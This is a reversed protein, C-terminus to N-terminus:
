DNSFYKSKIVIIMLIKKYQVSTHSLDYTPERTNVTAVLSVVTCSWLTCLSEQKNVEDLIVKRWWMFQIFRSAVM